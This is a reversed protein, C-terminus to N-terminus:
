TCLKLANKIVQLIEKDNKMKEATDKCKEADIEVMESPYFLILQKYSEIIVIRFICYIPLALIMGLAGFAQAFAMTLVVSLFSNVSVKDSVVFPTLYVSDIFQTTFNILLVYIAIKPDMAMGVIFSPILGIWPGIYPINNMLGAFAGLLLWNDIGIIYLGVSTMVGVAITQIVKGNFYNNVEDIIAYYANFFTENIEEPVIKKLYDDVINIKKFYFYFMFPYILIAYYCLVALNAIIDGASLIMKSSFKLVINNIEERITESLYQSVHLTDIMSNIARTGTQILQEFYVLNMVLYSFKDSISAIYYGIFLVSFVIILIKLTRRNKKSLPATLSNFVQGLKDIIIIICLGTIIVIFIDTFYFMILFILSLVTGIIVLTSWVTKNTSLPM